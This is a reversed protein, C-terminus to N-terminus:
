RLMETCAVLSLPVGPLRPYLGEKGGALSYHEVKFCLKTFYLVQCVPTQLCEEWKYIYGHPFSVCYSYDKYPSFYVSSFVAPVLM